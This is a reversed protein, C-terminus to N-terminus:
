TEATTQERAGQKGLGLNSPTHMRLTALAHRQVGRSSLAAGRVVSWWSRAWSWSGYQNYSCCLKYVFSLYLVTM